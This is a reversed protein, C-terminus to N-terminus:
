RLSEREQLDDHLLDYMSAVAEDAEHDGCWKGKPLAECDACDGDRHERRYDAADELASLATGLQERGLVPGLDNRLGAEIAAASLSDDPGIGLSAIIHERAEDLTM